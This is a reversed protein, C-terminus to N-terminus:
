KANKSRIMKIEQKLSKIEQRDQKTNFQKLVAIRILKKHITNTIIGNINKM